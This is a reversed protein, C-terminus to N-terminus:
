GYDCLEFLGLDLDVQLLGDFGCTFVIGVKYLCIAFLQLCVFWAIWLLLGCYVM